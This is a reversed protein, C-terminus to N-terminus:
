ITLNSFEIFNNEAMQYLYTAVRQPVEHEEEQFSRRFSETLEGVTRKGDIQRWIFSGREELPIRIFKKSERLRPQLIRAMLGSPFRPQLIVVLGPTVGNEWGCAQVPVLGMFDVGRWRRSSKRFWHM